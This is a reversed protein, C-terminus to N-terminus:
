SERYFFDCRVLGGPLTDEITVYGQNGIIELDLGKTTQGGGGLVMCYVLPSGYGDPPSGRIQVTGLSVNRFPAWGMDAMRNQVGDESLIQMESESSVPCKSLLDNYQISQDTVYAPCTYAYVDVSMVDNSSFFWVCDIWAEPYDLPMTVMARGQAVWPYYYSKVSDPDDSYSVHCDVWPALFDDPYFAQIGIQGAPLDGGGSLYDGAGVTQLYEGNIYINFGLTPSTESYKWCDPMLSDFTDGANVPRNCSYLSMNISPGRQGEFAFPEWGFVSFQAGSTDTVEDDSAADGMEPTETSGVDEPIDEETPSETPPEEDSVDSETEATPSPAPTETSALEVCDEAEEDWIQDFPCMPQASAWSSWSFASVLVALVLLMTACQGTHRVRNSSILM